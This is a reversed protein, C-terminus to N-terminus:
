QAAKSRVVLDAAASHWSPYEFRFGHKLLVGPAVWRSKFVLEPESRMVWLAPRM